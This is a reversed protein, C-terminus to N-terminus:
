PPLVYAVLVNLVMMLAHQHECLLKIKTMELDEITGQADSRHGEIRKYRAPDHMESVPCDTRLKASNRM